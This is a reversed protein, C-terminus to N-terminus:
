IRRRRPRSSTYEIYRTDAHFITELLERLSHTAEQPAAPTEEYPEGEREAWLRKLYLRDMRDNLKDLKNADDWKFKPHFALVLGGFTIAVETKSIEVGNAYSHSVVYRERCAEGPQPLPRVSFRTGVGEQAHRANEAVIIQQLDEAPEPTYIPIQAM